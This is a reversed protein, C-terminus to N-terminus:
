REIAKRRRRAAAVGLMGLGALMMAYTEPEPVVGVVTRSFVCSPDGNTCSAAIDFSIEVDVLVPDGFEDVVPAGLEDFTQKKGFLQLTVGTTSYLYTGEPVAGQSPSFTGFLFDRSEGPQMQIPDVFNITDPGLTNFEFNYPSGTVCNSTGVFTSGCTFYTNTLARDISYWDSPVDLPDIGFGPLSSDVVLPQSSPDLTLRMWVPISDTPGVTASQELFTLTGNPVAQAVSAAGAFALAAAVQKAKLV